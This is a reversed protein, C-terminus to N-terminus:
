LRKMRNELYIRQSQYWFRSTGSKRSSKHRLEPRGPHRYQPLCKIPQHAWSSSRGRTRRGYLLSQSPASRLQSIGAVPRHLHGCRGKLGASGPKQRGCLAGAHRGKGCCPGSGSAPLESWASRRCGAAGLGTGALARPYTQCGFRGAGACLPTHIQGSCRIKRKPQHPQLHPFLAPRRLRQLQGM